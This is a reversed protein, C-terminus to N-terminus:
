FLVHSREACILVRFPSVIGPRGIVAPWTGLHCLRLSILSKAQFMLRWSSREERRPEVPALQDAEITNELPAPGRIPLDMASNFVAYSFKRAASIHNANRKNVDTNGCKCINTCEEPMWSRYSSFGTFVSGSLQKCIQLNFKFQFILNM